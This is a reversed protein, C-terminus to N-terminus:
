ALEAIVLFVSSIAAVSVAWQMLRAKKHLVDSVFYNQWAYQQECAREDIQAIDHSYAEPSGRERIDEWFIVGNKGRPLRPFLCYASLLASFLFGASAFFHFPLCFVLDYKRGAIFGLVVLAAALFGGAKADMVTVYHNLYDNVGKGFGAPPTDITDKGSADAASALNQSVDNTM